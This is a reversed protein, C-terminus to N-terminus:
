VATLSSLDNVCIVHVDSCSLIVVEPGSYIGSLDTQHSSPILATIPMKRFLNEMASDLLPQIKTLSNIFGYRHSQKLFAYIKNLLEHTVVSDCVSGMSSFCM